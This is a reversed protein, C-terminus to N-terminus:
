NGHFLQNANNTTISAVEEITVNKIEALKKAILEIYASENRKGRYPTPTLYPSDTELVLHEIDIHEVTKDLGGNKFTLVGGIGLKFNGYDIIKQAQEPTGTFCHFVGSLTDDNLEDMIAFVEDFSERVHIVIPLNIKKALSVQRRFAEQQQRLYTKDWYLDIGIEGVAYFRHQAHWQEIIELEEEFNEKVDSPHLGMLPFCHDPYRQCLKMMPDITDININPLYFRDVKSAIARELVEDIDENFQEVFLHTHTDVLQM